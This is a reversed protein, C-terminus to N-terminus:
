LDNIWTKFEDSELFRTYNTLSLQLEQKSIAFRNTIRNLVEVAEAFRLSIIEVDLLKLYGQTFDPLTDILSTLYYISKTTDGNAFAISGRYLDLLPDKGVLRDINEVSELALGFQRNIFYADISLLNISPDDPYLARFGDIADLYDKQDIRSYIM